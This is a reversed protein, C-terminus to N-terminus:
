ICTILSPNDSANSVQSIFHAFIPVLGTKFVPLYFLTIEMDRVNMSCIMDIVSNMSENDVVSSMSELQTV